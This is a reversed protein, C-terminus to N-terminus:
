VQRHPVGRSPLRNYLTAVAWGVVAGYLLTEGLGLLLTWPTGWRVGVLLTEWFREMQLWTPFLLDGLLCLAFLAAVVLGSALALRRPDLTLRPAAVTLAVAPPQVKPPGFGEAAIVAELQAAACQEPDFEIYAMETAPNLYVYRVGPLRTLAREVVLSGSGGCGLNYIPVTVRQPKM